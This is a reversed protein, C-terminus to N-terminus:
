LGSERTDVPVTVRVRADYATAKEDYPLADIEISTGFPLEGAGTVDDNGNDTTNEEPCTAGLAADADSLEDSFTTTTNDAITARLKHVAGNVATRYIKRATVQASGIAVSNLNVGHNPGFILVGWSPGGPTEGDATVFTTRYGYLGVAMNGTARFGVLGLSGPTAERNESGAFRDICKMLAEAAVQAQLHALEATQVRALYDLVLAVQAERAGQAKAGTSARPTYIGLGPLARGLGFVAAPVKYLTVTSTLTQSISKATVLAAFDTAFRLAIVEEARAIAEYFM